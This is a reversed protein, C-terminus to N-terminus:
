CIGLVSEDLTLIDDQSIIELDFEEETKLLRMREATHKKTWKGRDIFDYVLAYDSGKRIVRGVRQKARVPSKGGGCNILASLTPIDLGEDAITSGILTIIDGKEFDELAKQRKKKTSGGYIFVSNPIHKLLYKGHDITQILILTKIGKDQLKKAIKIICTNRDDCQTINKKRDDAWTMLLPSRGKVKIFKITPKMLYGLRILESATIVATKRGFLGEITMYSNDARLPTASGGFRYYAKPSKLIIDQCTKASYHHCNHTLTNEAIFHHKETEFDYVTFIGSEKKIKKIYSAYYIDGKYKVYRKYSSKNLLDISDQKRKMSLTIKKKFDNISDGTISLYFVYNHLKNERKKTKIQSVVGFKLLLLQIDKCMNLSTTTFLIRNTSINGESCFCGDIFGKLNSLSNNWIYDSIYIHKSKKGRRIGIEDVLFLNFKKNNTYLLLNDRSDNEIVYDTIGFDKLGEIFVDKFWERDKDINIKVKYTFNEIHGDSMITSILRLQNYTLKNNKSIKHPIKKPILLFDGEKLSKSCTTIVDSEIFEEFKGYTDHKKSVRIKTRPISLNPHNLTTSITGCQHELNIINKVSRSFKHSVKGGILEDGNKVNEVKIIKGNKDLIRTGEVLCEDAYVGKAEGVMKLIVDRKEKIHDLKEKKFERFEMDDMGSSEKIEKMAKKFYKEGYLAYTVTQITVVNIDRIDCEGDGIVGVVLGPITKELMKKAQRMLDKTLVYFVFPAVGLEQIIKAIIITKGSGTAAEIVARGRRVCSEVIQPQYEERLKFEDENWKLDLTKEPKEIEWILEPKIDYEKRFYNYVRYTLGTLFTDNARKYLHVKGDWGKEKEEPDEINDVFKPSWKAGPVDFSLFDWLEKRFEFPMGEIVSWQNRIRIKIDSMNCSM